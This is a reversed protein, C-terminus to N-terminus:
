KLKSVNSEGERERESDLKRERCASGKRDM